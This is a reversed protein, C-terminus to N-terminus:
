RPVTNIVKINERDVRWVSNNRSDILVGGIWRQVVNEVLWDADNNLLQQTFETPSVQWQNPKEGRRNIVLAPHEVDTLRSIILWYGTDGYFPLPEYHNTYWGFLRAANMAGKDQVIQLTLQETFSLGNEMSPLEFLHRQLAVAMTPLAPTGSYVLQMLAKPTPATIAQWAQQGLTLQADTIPEFQQWLVRLAEPPLQGIGNFRKVGPFHTVSILHLQRPRHKPESFYDLLKALILQDHSDHEFWLMVRDYDRAKELAGYEGQLRTLAEDYSIGLESLAKARITLFEGMTKTRPVPGHVYLDVFCLFDGSFGAIALGYQIDTGCRIHLTRQDSDPADPNGSQLVERETRAQEIHTKLNIWNRFGYQQAIAQQADSLKPSGCPGNHNSQWDKLLEKARKKQQELSLHNLKRPDGDTFDHPVYKQVVLQKRLEALNTLM